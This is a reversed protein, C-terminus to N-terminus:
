RDEEHHVESQIEHHADMREAREHALVIDQWVPERVMAALEQSCDYAHLTAQCVVMAAHVHSDVVARTESDFLDLEQIKDVLALLDYIQGQM